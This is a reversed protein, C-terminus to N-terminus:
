SGAFTASGWRRFGASFRNAEPRTTGPRLGSGPQLTADAEPDPDAALDAADGFGDATLHPTAGGDSGTIPWRLSSWRIRRLWRLPRSPSRVLATSAAAPWV